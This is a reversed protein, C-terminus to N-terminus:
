FAQASALIGDVPQMETTTHYPVRGRRMTTDFLARARARLFSM